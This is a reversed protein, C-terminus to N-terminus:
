ASMREDFWEPVYTRRSRGEYFETEELLLKQKQERTIKRDVWRDIIDRRAQEHARREDATRYRM